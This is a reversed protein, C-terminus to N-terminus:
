NIVKWLWGAGGTYTVSLTEGPNWLYTGANGQCATTISIGAGNIDVVTVAGNYIYLAAEISVFQGGIWTNRSCSATDCQVCIDVVEYDINLLTNAFFYTSNTIWMGIHAGSYSGQFTSFATPGAIQMATGAPSNISFNFFCNATLNIQVGVSSASGGNNNVVVNNFTMGNAADGANYRMVAIVPGNTNVGAVSFNTFTQYFAATGAV